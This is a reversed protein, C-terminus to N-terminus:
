TIGSHLCFIHCLLRVKEHTGIWLEAYPTDPDVEDIIGSELAFRAVRSDLGRIGWAYDKVAPRLPVVTSGTTTSYSRVSAMSATTPSVKPRIPPYSHQRHDEETTGTIDTSRPPMAHFTSSRPQHNPHFTLREAFRRLRCLAGIEVRSQGEIDSPLKGTKRSNIEAMFYTYVGIVYCYPSLDPTSLM